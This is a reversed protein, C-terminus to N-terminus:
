TIHVSYVNKHCHTCTCDQRYVCVGVWGLGQWLGATNILHSHLHMPFEVCEETRKPSLFYDPPSVPFAAMPLTCVTARIWHVMM